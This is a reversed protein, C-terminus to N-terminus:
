AYTGKDHPMGLMILGKLITRKWEWDIPKLSEDRKAAEAYFAARDKDLWWSKEDPDSPPKVPKPGSVHLRQHAGPKPIFRTNIGFANPRRGVPGGLRKKM